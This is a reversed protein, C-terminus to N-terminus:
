VLNQDLALFDSEHLHNPVDFPLTNFCTTTMVTPWPRNMSISFQSKSNPSMQDLSSNGPSWQPPNTQMEELNLCLSSLKSKDVIQSNTVNCPRM